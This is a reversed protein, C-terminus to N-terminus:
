RELLNLHQIPTTRVQNTYCKVCEDKYIFRGQVSSVLNQNTYHPCDSM